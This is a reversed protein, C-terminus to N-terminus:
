LRKEQLDMIASQQMLTTHRLMEPFRPLLTNKFSGYTAYMAKFAEERVNRDPSELFNIFRGHSLEVEEGKENKVTPFKLDANNLMSFTNSSSGAVESLQALLGEQEKPLVHPRVSNLEKVEQKYLSLKENKRLWKELTTADMSLLEPLFFALKTSVKVALSKARSDMAQYTSNTTDQDTKLHSYTYLKGLRQSIEDRYTLAKLLADPGDSLTGQYSDAESSLNEIEKYEIDWAADSTFINELNWTEEVKVEDRTLLKEAM